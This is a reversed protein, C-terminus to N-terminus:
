HTLLRQKVMVLTLSFFHRVIRNSQSEESRCKDGLLRSPCGFPFSTKQAIHYVLIFGSVVSASDINKWVVELTTWSEEPEKLTCSAEHQVLWSHITTPFCCYDIDHRRRGKRLDNVAKSAPRWHHQRTDTGRQKAGSWLSGSIIKRPGIWDV